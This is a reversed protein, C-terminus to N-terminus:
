KSSSGHLIVLSSIDNKFVHTMKWEETDKNAWVNCVKLLLLGDLHLNEVAWNVLNRMDNKLYFDTKRWLKSRTETGHSIMRRYM